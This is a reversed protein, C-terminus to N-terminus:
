VGIVQIQPNPAPAIGIPIKCRAGEYPASSTKCGIAGEAGLEPACM